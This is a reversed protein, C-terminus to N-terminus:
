VSVPLVRVRDLDVVPVPLKQDLVHVTLVQSFFVLGNM